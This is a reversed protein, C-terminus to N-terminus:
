RTLEVMVTGISTDLLKTGRPGKGFAEMVEPMIGLLTEREEHTLAGFDRYEEPVEMTYNYGDDNPGMLRTIQDDLNVFLNPREETALNRHNTSCKLLDAEDGCFVYLHGIVNGDEYLNAVPTYSYDDHLTAGIGSEVLENANEPFVTSIERAQVSCAGLFILSAGILATYAKRVIDM